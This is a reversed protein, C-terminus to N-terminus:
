SQSERNAADLITVLVYLNDVVQNNLSMVAVFQELYSYDSDWPTLVKAWEVPLWNKAKDQLQQLYTLLANRQENFRAGNPNLLVPQLLGRATIDEALEAISEENFVTRVQPRIDILDLPVLKVVSINPLEPAALKVKAHSVKASKAKIIIDKVADLQTGAGRLTTKLTANM